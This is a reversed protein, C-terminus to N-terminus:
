RVVAPRRAPRAPRDRLYRQRVALGLAVTFLAMNQNEFGYFGIQILAVLTVVHLWVETTTPCGRTAWFAWVFFGVFLLLGPYGHSFLVAWVQGQTGVSTQYARESPLPTGFGLWPSGGVRLIAEQYLGARAENTESNDVRTTILDVVPIVLTMLAVASFVGLVSLLARINGRVAFRIAAYVLGAGLSVFMMRNLTLFAPVLALLMTAALLMRSSRRTELTILALMCPVLLAFVSGWANTYPFPASPRYYTGGTTRSAEAATLGFLVDTFDNAALSGPLVRHLVTNEHVRPALVGLWGGAVVLYWYASLWRLARRLPLRDAGVNVLYVLVVGASTILLIRLGFGVLRPAGQVEIVSLLSWAAYLAWLLAGVRPAVLGPYQCMLLVCVVAMVIWILLSAGVVWWLPALLLPIAVPWAPLGPAPRGRAPAGPAARSATGPRRDVTAVVSM